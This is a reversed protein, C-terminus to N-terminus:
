QRPEPHLLKLSRRVMDDLDHSVKDIAFLNQYLDTRKAAIDRSLEEVEAKRGRPPTQAKSTFPWIM